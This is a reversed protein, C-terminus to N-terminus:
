VGGTAEGIIVEPFLVTTKETKGLLNELEFAESSSGLGRLSALTDIMFQYEVADSVSLVVRTEHPFAQRIPILLQQLNKLLKQQDSAIVKKTYGTEPRGKFYRKLVQNLRAQGVVKLESVPVLLIKKTKNSRVTKDTIVM